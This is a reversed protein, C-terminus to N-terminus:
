VQMADPSNGSFERFDPLITTRGAFLSFAAFRGRQHGPKLRGM